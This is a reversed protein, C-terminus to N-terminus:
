EERLTRMPNVWAARLAPALAAILSVILLVFTVMLFTSADLPEVGFLLSSVLRTIFVSAIAGAATGSLGLMLARRVVMALIDSRSAGFAMRLGLERMREAVVYSLVAYLGLASLLLAIGAFASVLAAEFRPQAAQLQLNEDFTRYGFMPALRDLRDVITRVTGEYSLPDGAVKMVVVPRQHSLNQAYPLYFRPEYPDWSDGGRTDGVVGVIQSATGPQLTHEALPTFFRGIPDENPFYKQVFSRNVIAVPAVRAVNDHATFTRGRMLPISLTEFFGPTVVASEAVPLDDPSSPHGVITFNTWVHSGHSPLPHGAAVREVGPIAAFEPLAKEFFPLRSPDPYRAHSLAIDFFVTRSTDFGPDLHLINLLSKILLGSGILLCFGLATEAVVLAHHLRNRRRGSTMTGGSERLTHAPDSRSMRWAPLLGFILATIASLVTAFVLVRGDISVNYLRPIDAPIRRLGLRLLLFSALIGVAGGALALILAEILLQRVVRFRSAGLATRVAIESRRAASRALLLGAVNTCGILLVLGVSALLVTLLPRIDGIAESLLPQMSVAPRYRDESYHQALDRQITTLDARAQDISVGPKLRGVVALQDDDRFSTRPPGPGEADISITSWFLGPDGTAYHFGAPMVGVVTYPLNSVMVTQGIADPLSAFVSVWLEHSLIVVRHGPQDEEPAFNRGLVPAVGLTSFLNASVRGCRIVQANEGDAKSFLRTQYDYSAISAFTHNERGWDFFDPYSTPISNGAELNATSVGPAFELTTVAVLRDSEPFPLPRLLIGDILSFIATTAAIGLALTAIVTLTFAPSRRFQRVAFTLDQRLTSLM